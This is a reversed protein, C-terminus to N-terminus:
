LVSPNDRCEVPRPFIKLVIQNTVYHSSIVAFSLVNSAIPSLTTEKAFAFAARWAGRATSPSRRAAYAEPPHHRRVLYDPFTVKPYGKKIPSTKQKDGPEGGIFVECM